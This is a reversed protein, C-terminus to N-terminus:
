YNLLLLIIIFIIIIMISGEKEFTPPTMFESLHSLKLCVEEYNVYM